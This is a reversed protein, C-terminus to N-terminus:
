ALHMKQTALLIAEPTNINMFSDLQPDFQRILDEGMWCTNLLAFLDRVRFNHHEIQQQITTLCTKSYLSHLGQPHEGIQPVVADYGASRKIMESILVPNIFPMDCAVCLTYRTSSHHLASYIGGLSSREALVDRYVPIGFAHYAELQNAIIMMPVNLVSLRHIVHAILPKDGLMVLGKDTGMRTSLGGALIAISVDIM